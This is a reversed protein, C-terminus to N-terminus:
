NADMRNKHKDSTKHRQLKDLRVECGCECVVKQSGRSYVREKIAEKNQQYYNKHYDRLEGKDLGDRRVKAKVLVREKNNEYWAKHQQQVHEKNAQTWEQVTRTPVYTNLTPKLVEIWHRERRELQMKNECVYEEVLVISVSAWGIANLHAYVRISSKKKGMSKHDYLRKPLSGCTSGVYVENDVSNVLRYIKGKNYRSDM